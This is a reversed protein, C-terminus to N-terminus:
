SPAIWLEPNDITSSVPKHLVINASSCGADAPRMVSGTLGSTMATWVPVLEIGGADYDNFYWSLIPASGSYNYRVILVFDMDAPVSADYPVEWCLNFMVDEPAGTLAASLLNVYNTNGKMRNITSGGATVSVPKWAEIPASEMTAVASLMPKNSNGTTGTFIENAVTNFNEDDWAELTPVNSTNQSFTVKIVNQNDSGNGAGNVRGPISM